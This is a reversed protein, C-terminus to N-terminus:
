EELDEAASPRAQAHVRARRFLEGVLAVAVIGVLLGLGDRWTPGMVGVTIILTTAAAPPHYARLALEGLMTLAVALASAAVRASVAHGAASVSLTGAAGCLWVCGYGVAIGLLHGVLTNYLRAVKARPRHAQIFATPGLSPFLWPQELWLSLLGAFLVLGGSMLPSWVLETARAWRRWGGLGNGKQNGM